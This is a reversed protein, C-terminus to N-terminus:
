RWDIRIGIRYVYIGLGYCVWRYLKHELRYRRHVFANKLGFSQNFYKIQVKM